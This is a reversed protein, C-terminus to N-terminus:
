DEPDPPAPQPESQLFEGVTRKGLVESYEQSLQDALARVPASWAPPRTFGTDGRTRVAAMVDSLRMAHIDSGPVLYDDDTAVLLGAGELQAVVKDVVVAPLGIEAAIDGVRVHRGTDRYALGVIWMINLALRERTLNSLGPDRRGIRLFARNQYYFALQAGLLLIIWNLYLWVLAFIAIAFGAYIAEIRHSSVVFTAFYVSTLAWLCGATVGGVLAATFRVQTNPIFKYLFTFALIVLALPMLNGAEALLPGIFSVNLLAQLVKNSQLAGILSLAVVMVLPGILLVSIYDAMRRGLSRPRSVHWVYNFSREVKQVMSIATYLFIALSVSGLTAGSVKNVTDIIEGTIMRAQDEGLPLLAQGLLPELREHINFGKLVSFSFAILPVIALLTSYVLSMAHLTLQGSLLDRSLGFLYRGVVLARRTYWPRDTIQPDWLLNRVREILNTLDSYRLNRPSCTYRLCGARHGHCIAM